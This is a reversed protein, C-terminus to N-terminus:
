MRHENAVRNLLLTEIGSSNQTRGPMSTLRTEVEVAGAGASTAALVLLFVSQFRLKLAM